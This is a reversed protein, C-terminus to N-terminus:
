NEDFKDLQITKCNQSWYDWEKESTADTTNTCTLYAVQKHVTAIKANNLYPEMSTKFVDGPVGLSAVIEENEILLLFTKGTESSSYNLLIDQALKKSILPGPEIHGVYGSNIVVLIHNESLGASVKGVQGDTLSSSELKLTKVIESLQQQKVTDTCSSVVVLIILFIFQRCLRRSEIM